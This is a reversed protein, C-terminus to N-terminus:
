SHRGVNPKDPYGEEKGLTGNTVEVINGIKVWLSDSDKCDELYIELLPGKVFAAIDLGVEYESVFGFKELLSPDMSPFLTRLGGSYLSFANVEELGSSVKERPIQKILAALNSLYLRKIVAQFASSFRDSKAGKEFSSLPIIKTYVDFPQGEYVKVECVPKLREKLFRYLNVKTEKTPLLRRETEQSSVAGPFEGNFNPVARPYSQFLSEM